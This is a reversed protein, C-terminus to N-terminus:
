ASVALTARPGIQENPAKIDITSGTGDGLELLDVRRVCNSSREM